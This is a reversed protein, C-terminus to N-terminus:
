IRYKTTIVLDLTTSSARPGRLRKQLLAEERVEDQDDSESRKAILDAYSFLGSRQPRYSRESKQKHGSLPKVAARQSSTDVADQDSQFYLHISAQDAHQFWSLCM